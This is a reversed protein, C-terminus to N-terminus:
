RVPTAQPPAAETEPLATIAAVIPLTLTFTSGEGQASTLSITGGHERVIEQSIFLGLGLGSQYAEANSARFFKGFLRAQDEQAIGIGRDQITILVHDGSGNTAQEQDITVTVPFEPPSYKIANEILNSLVQDLRNADWQGFCADIRRELTIVRQPYVLRFREVVDTLLQVLDAPQRQLVLRQQEINTLSLLENVLESLRDVQQIVLTMLRERRADQDGSRMRLLDTFGRLGTLPTRLEHAVMSLFASKRDSLEQLHATQQQEIEYLRALETNAREIQELRTALEVTAAQVRAQLEDAFGAIRTNAEELEAVRAKLALALGRKELGRAITLKLEDVDCPKILYDYAGARMAQIASQLSAYGTLLIVIIEPDAAKVAKLMAMGDREDIRLDTLVLDLPQSQILELGVSTQNAIQVDYGEMELVAQLTILVSEEDDICLIRPPQM